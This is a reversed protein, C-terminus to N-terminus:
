VKGFLRLWPVPASTAGEDRDGDGDGMGLMQKRM